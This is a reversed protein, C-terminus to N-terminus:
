LFSPSLKTRNRVKTPINYRMEINDALESPLGFATFDFPPDGRVNFVNPINITRPCDECESVAKCKDITVFHEIISEVMADGLIEEIKEDPITAINEVYLLSESVM